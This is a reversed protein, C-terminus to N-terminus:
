SHRTPRHETPVFAAGSIILGKSSHHFDEIEFGAERITDATNRNINCGGTLIRWPGNILNMGHRLSPKRSVVHEIFYARGGPKLVRRLESFGALPNTVTCFVLTFVASDFSRDAFPLNEAGAEHLRIKERDRFRIEPRHEAATSRRGNGELGARQLLKERIQTDTLHLESLRTFDYFPLNVGTGAGIELVRGSARPILARRRRELTATELPRMCLDFFESGVDMDRWLGAGEYYVVQCRPSCRLLENPIEPLQRLIECPEDQQENEASPDLATLLPPLLQHHSTKVSVTSDTEPSVYKDMSISGWLEDQMLEPM